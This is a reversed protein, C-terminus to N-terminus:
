LLDESSLIKKIQPLLENKGNNIIIYDSKEKFFEDSPQNKLRQEIEEVSIMDRLALRSRRIEIDALVAIVFDCMDELKAQFLQPADIVVAKEGRKEKEEIIETCKKIVYKHVISNLKLLKEKDEFVIAALNKRCVTGDSFFINEGFEHLLESKCETNSTYLEHVIKDTDISEINYSALHAGVYGKGSGSPGTLGIIKIPM